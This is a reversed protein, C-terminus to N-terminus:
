VILGFGAVFLVYCKKGLFSGPTIPVKGPEKFSRGDLQFDCILRRGQYGAFVAQTFHLACCSLRM